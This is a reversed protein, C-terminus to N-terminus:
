KANVKEQLRNLDLRLEVVKQVLQQESKQARDLEETVLILAHILHYNDSSPIRKIHELLKDNM